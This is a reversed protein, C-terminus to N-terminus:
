KEDTLPCSTLISRSVPDYLRDRIMVVYFDGTSTLLPALAM